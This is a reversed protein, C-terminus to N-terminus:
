IPRQMLIAPLAIEPGMALEIRRVRRFGLARYFGEANLSSYCELRDARAARAGKECRAYIARGVGRGTWDPHTAFHRIHALGPEFAGTGPRKLTWGGCGALVGDATMALQFDGGALLEPNAKTMLPLAAALAPEEYAAAMLSPYSAELLATVIAADAPTAARVFFGETM